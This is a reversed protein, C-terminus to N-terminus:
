CLECTKTIKLFRILTWKLHTASFVTKKTLRVLTAISSGIYYSNSLMHFHWLVLYLEVYYYIYIIMIISIFILKIVINNIPSETNQTQIRSKKKHQLACGQWGIWIKHSFMKLWITYCYIEYFLLALYFYSSKQPQVRNMGIIVIYAYRSYQNWIM